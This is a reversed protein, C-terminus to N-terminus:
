HSTVAMEIHDADSNYQRPRICAMRACAASLARAPGKRYEGSWLTDFRGTTCLRYARGACDSSALAAASASTSESTGSQM